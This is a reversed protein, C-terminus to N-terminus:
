DVRAVTVGQQDQYKGGKTAYTVDPRQGRLFVIQLIGEDPYLLVPRKSTNSLEITLIGKWGPELPTVNAIIGCRAYTSKGMAIGIVDDPMEIHEILEGLVFEGPHLAFPSPTEFEEFESAANKPDVPLGEAMSYRKFRTGLRFDYGYHGLGYSIIGPRKQCEAFPTIRVYERIAWDPLVGYPISREAQNKLNLM